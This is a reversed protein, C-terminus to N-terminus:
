QQQEALYDRYSSIFRKFQTSHKWGIERGYKKVLSGYGHNNSDPIYDNFIKNALEIPIAKGQFFFVESGANDSSSTEILHGQTARIKELLVEDESMEGVREFHLFPASEVRKMVLVTEPEGENRNHLVKLMKTNRDFRTPGFALVVSALDTLVTSGKLNQTGISGEYGEKNTHAVIIFTLSVGSEKAEAQLQELFGILQRIQEPQLGPIAKTINDIGITCDSTLKSVLNRLYCKFVELTSFQRSLVIKMKDPAHYGPKGYREKLQARKQEFDLCISDQGDHQTGFQPYLEQSSGTAVGALLQVLLTSKGHGKPGFIIVFDEKHIIDGVLRTDKITEDCGSIAEKITQPDSVEDIEANIANRRDEEEYREIKEQEVRREDRRNKRNEAKKENAYDAREKFANTKKDERLCLFWYGIGGVIFTTGIKIIAHENREWFSRKSNTQQKPRYVSKQNHKVRFSTKVKM